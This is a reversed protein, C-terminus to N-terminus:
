LRAMPRGCCVFRVHEGDPRGCGARVRIGVTCRECRYREGKRRAPALGPGPMGVAGSPKPAAPGAPRGAPRTM